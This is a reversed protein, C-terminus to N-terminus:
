FIEVAEFPRFIDSRAFAVLFQFCKGLLAEKVEKIGEESTEESATSLSGSTALRDFILILVDSLVDAPILLPQHVHLYVHSNRSFNFNKRM